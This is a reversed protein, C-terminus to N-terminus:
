QCFEVGFGAGHAGKGAEEKVIRNLGLTVARGNKQPFGCGNTRPHFPYSTSTRLSMLFSYFIWYGYDNDLSIHFVHRLTNAGVGGQGRRNLFGAM